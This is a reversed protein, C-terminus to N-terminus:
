YKSVDELIAAWHTAGIYTSEGPKLLVQGSTSSSHSPCAAALPEIVEGQIRTDVKPPLSAGELSTLPNDPTQVSMADKVLSELHKLRSQM